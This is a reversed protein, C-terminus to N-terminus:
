EIAVCAGHRELVPALAGFSEVMHTFNESRKLEPKAPLMVCFFNKAGVGAADAVVAAAKAVADRRVMKDPSILEKWGILDASGVQLAAASVMRCAAVDAGVDVVGIG